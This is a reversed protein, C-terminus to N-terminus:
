TVQGLIAPDGVGAVQVDEREQKMKMKMGEASHAQGSLPANSWDDLILGSIEVLQASLLPFHPKWAAPQSKPAPIFPCFPSLLAGKTSRCPPFPAWGPLPCEDHSPSNDLCRQSLQPTQLSGQPFQILESNWNM